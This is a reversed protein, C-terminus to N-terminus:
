MNNFSLKISKVTITKAVDNTFKQLDIPISALTFNPLLDNPIIQSSYFSVLTKSVPVHTVTTSKSM